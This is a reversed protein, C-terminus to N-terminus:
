PVRKSNLIVTTREGTRSDSQLEQTAFNYILIPGNITDGNQVLTADQLLEVKDTKPYYKIIKASGSGPKQPNVKSTFSAPNGIAVILKIKKHEDKYITLKDAYLDRAGQNVVVKGTYTAIGTKNNYHATNSTVRVPVSAAKPACYGLQCYFGLTGSILLIFLRSIKM